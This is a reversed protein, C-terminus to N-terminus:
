LKVVPTEPFQMYNSTDLIIRPSPDDRLDNVADLAFDPNDTQLLITWEDSDQDLALVIIKKYM